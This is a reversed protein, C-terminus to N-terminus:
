LTAALEDYRDEMGHKEFQRRIEGRDVEPLTMLYRIDELERFRRSPDNEMAFVKLAALHEPRVVPFRQDASIEVQRLGRFLSDSTEGRVYIVDIRGREPDPHLHNSYGSSLHLTEFGESELYRVLSDQARGPVVVDLDLTTRTMGYAAMAIGGVIAIGHGRDTLHAELATFTAFFDM